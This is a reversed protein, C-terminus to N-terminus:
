RPVSACGLRSGDCESRRRGCACFPEGAEGGADSALAARLQDAEPRLGTARMRRLRDDYDALTAFTVAREATVGRWFARAEREAAEARLALLEAAMARIERGHLSELAAMERLREDTPRTM